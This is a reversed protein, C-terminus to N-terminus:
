QKAHLCDYLLCSVLLSLSDLTVRYVKVFSCHALLCPLTLPAATITYNSLYRGMLENACNGYDPHLAENCRLVTFNYLSLSLALWSVVIVVGAKLLWWSAEFM